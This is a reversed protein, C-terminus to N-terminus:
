PFQALALKCVAQYYKGLSVTLINFRAAAKNM